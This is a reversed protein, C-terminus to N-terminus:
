FAAQWRAQHLLKDVLRMDRGRELFLSPCTLLYRGEPAAADVDRRAPEKFVHRGGIFACPLDLFGSGAVDALGDQLGETHRAGVQVEGADGVRCAHRRFQGARRVPHRDGHEVWQHRLDGTDHQGLRRPERGFPEPQQHLLDPLPETLGRQGASLTNRQFLEPTLAAIRKRPDPQLGGTACRQFSAHAARCLRGHM